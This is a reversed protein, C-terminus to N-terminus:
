WRPPKQEFQAIPKSTVGSKKPIVVYSKDRIYTDPNLEQWSQTNFKLVLATSNQISSLKDGSLNYATTWIDNKESFVSFGSTVLSATNFDNKLSQIVDTSFRHDTEKSYTNRDYQYAIHKKPFNLSAATYIKEIEEATQKSLVRNPILLINPIEKNSILTKTIATTEAYGAPSVRRHNQMIPMNKYRKPKGLFPTTLGSVFGIKQFTEHKAERQLIITKM